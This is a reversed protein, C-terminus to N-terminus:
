GSFNVLQPDPEVSQAALRDMFSAHFLVPRFDLCAEHGAPTLEGSPLMIKGGLYSAQDLLVGSKKSVRGGNDPSLLVTAADSFRTSRLNKKGLMDQGREGGKDGLWRPHDQTLHSEAAPSLFSLLCVLLVLLPSM